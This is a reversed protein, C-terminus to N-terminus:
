EHNTESLLFATIDNDNLCKECVSENMLDNIDENDIFSGCRDCQQFKSDICDPCYSEGNVEILIQTRIGCKCRSLTKAYKPHVFHMLGNEDIIEVLPQLTLEHTIECEKADSKCYNCVYEEDILTFDKDSKFKEGCHDCQFVQIFNRYPILTQFELRKNKGIFSWRGYPNNYIGYNVEGSGDINCQDEICQAETRLIESSIRRMVEIADGEAFGPVLYPNCFNIVDQNIWGFARFVNINKPKTEHRKSITFTFTNPTQGLVFKHNTKDSGNRFCSDSDPGYHGLLTFSKASTSLTAELDSSSTRAKSWLLGLKSLAQDLKAIKAKAEGYFNTDRLQSLAYTRIHKGVKFVSHTGQQVTPKLFVEDTFGYGALYQPLINTIERVIPEAEQKSISNQTSDLKYFSQKRIGGLLKRIDVHSSEVRDFWTRLNTPFFGEHKKKFSTNIWNNFEEWTDCYGNSM